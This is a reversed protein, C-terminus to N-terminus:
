PEFMIRLCTIGGEAKAFESIDLLKVEFGLERVINATQSHSAAMFVCDGVLMTNAAWPEDPSVYVIGYDALGATDIWDPNVLLRGDPLATCATKLHLCREVPVPQVRYGYRHVVTDLADIGQQDTRSSLGVLLTRELQLVDGGELMAPRQLSHVNRYRQLESVIGRPEDRRAVTGMPALVALEDLVIATDEIFTCDPFELNVDLRRVEVGCQALAKCYEGHQRVALEYDIAAHAVFTRQCQQM